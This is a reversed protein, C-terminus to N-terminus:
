YGNNRQRMDVYVAGNGGTKLAEQRSRARKNYQASAVAWQHWTIFLIPIVVTFSNTILTGIAEWEVGIIQYKEQGLIFIVPYGALFLIYLWYVNNCHSRDCNWFSIFVGVFFTLMAVMVWTSTFTDSTFGMSAAAGFFSAMAIASFFAHMRTQKFVTCIFFHLLTQVIGMVIVLGEFVLAGNFPDAYEGGSANYTGAATVLYGLCLGAMLLLNVMYFIEFPTDPKIVNKQALM